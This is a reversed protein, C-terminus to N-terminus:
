DSAAAVVLAVSAVKLSRSAWRAWTSQPRYYRYVDLAAPALVFAGIAGESVGADGLSLAMGRTDREQPGVGALGAAGYVASTVLHFAFIGKSFPASERRLDPRRTLIWEASAYQAWLGASSVAYEQRRSAADHTIAFFPIAGAKIGKVRPEAGAAAALGVHGAEHILLGTVGGALWTLMWRGSRWEVGSGAGAPSDDRISASGATSAEASPNQEATASENQAASAPPVSVAVMVAWALVVITRM